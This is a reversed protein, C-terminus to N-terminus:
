IGLIRKVTAGPPNRFEFRGASIEPDREIETFNIITHDLQPLEIRVPAFDSVRLWLFVPQSKLGFASYRSPSRGELRYSPVGGVNQVGKLTLSNAETLLSTDFDLARKVMGSIIPLNAPITTVRNKRSEYEVLVRPNAAYERYRKDDRRLLLRAGTNKMVEIRGTQVKWKRDRSGKKVPSFEAVQINARFSKADRAARSMGTIVYQTDHGPPPQRLQTLARDRFEQGRASMGTMVLVGALLSITIRQVM